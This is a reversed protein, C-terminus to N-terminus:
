GLYNMLFIIKKRNDLISELHDILLQFASFWDKPIQDITLNSQRQLSVQFNILQQKTKANALGTLQFDFTYNFHERILFTKGVRRRGIVAVMEAEDSQLVKQLTAQEKKRGILSKSM